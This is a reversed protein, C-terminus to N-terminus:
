KDTLMKAITEIPNALSSDYKVGSGYWESWERLKMGLIVLM